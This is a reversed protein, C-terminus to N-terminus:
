FGPLIAQTKLKKLKPPLFNWFISPIFSFKEREGERGMGQIKFSTGRGLSTKTTGRGLAFIKAGRSFKQRRGHTPWLAPSFFERQM